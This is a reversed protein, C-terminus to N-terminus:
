VGLVAYDYCYPFHSVGNNKRSQPVCANIRTCLCVCVCQVCGKIRVCVSGCVCLRLSVCVSYICVTCACKCLVCHM